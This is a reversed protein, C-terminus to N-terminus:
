RSVLNEWPAPPLMPGDQLRNYAVLLMASLGLLTLAIRIRATM